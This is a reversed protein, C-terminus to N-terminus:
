ESRIKKLDLQRAILSQAHSNFKFKQATKHIMHTLFLLPKLRTCIVEGHLNSAKLHKVQPITIISNSLEDIQQRLIHPHACAM